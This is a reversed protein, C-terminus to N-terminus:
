LDRLGRHIRRLLAPDCVFEDRTVAAAPASRVGRPLRAASLMGPPVTLEASVVKGGRSSPRYTWQKCLAAVIALGRGGEEDSAADHRVPARPDRDWVEVIVGAPYLLLRVDITALGGLDAWRPKTNTVGTARVSNTVLESIVLEADEILAALGWRNVTLHVLQRSCSVATPTAALTLFTVGQARDPYPFEDSPATV